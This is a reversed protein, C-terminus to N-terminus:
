KMEELLQMEPADPFERRIRDGYTRAEMKNGLKMEAQVGLWLLAANLPLNEDFREIFARVGLYNEQEFSFLAMQALADTFKPDFNLALRFYNEASELDPIRKVCIGANTYAVHPTRYATNKAAKMFYEESERYEKSRCLFTGYNNQTEPDRPSSRIARRWHKRALDIEGIQEYLLAITVHAPSLKRDQILARKLKEMALDRRGQVMYQRGLEYNYIAAQEDRQKKSPRAPGSTACGVLFVATFVIAVLNKWSM